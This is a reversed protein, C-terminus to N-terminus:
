VRTEEQRRIAPVGIVIPLMIGLLLAVLVGLDTGALESDLPVGLLGYLYGQWGLWTVTATTLGFGIGTILFLGILNGWRVDAYVGGRKVLSESEFRRNRIMTEAAFIGAWAAIPVALTTALDRFLEYIGGSVAFTLVLAVLGLLVATIVTAWQRRVRVGIAQLAFGGSYLTVVIGSLLSLVTAAILPVPYWSPLMLALTDLPSLVFGSAIGKDSAALLAGYTILVFAPLTAGVTSWLMSAAGSSSPRQYRALDAGSTAWVLGVFSFVLVAGTIALVWSGDPTTLAAPIDIYQFTLAILGVILIASAITTILQIRALLHYGAFAILLAIVFAAGLSIILVLSESLGGTLSAGVLVVAVGSGLLWLLVAGWFIRTLFALIAPVVNGVLGFTARSVVMTPQGSRKGALTTLGLPLFSLATGALVAVISQRLSMGLAFVSAGLGLSVITSNSAFWLWFLRAARGVRHDVPTPELGVQEISFVRQRVPEPDLLVVEDEPIRVTSIPGSPPSILATVRDTDDVDDDLEEEYAQDIVTISDTDLAVGESASFPAPEVFFGEAGFPPPVIEPEPRVEEDAPGSLLDDFSFPTGSLPIETPTEDEIVEAVVVDDPDTATPESPASEAVTPPVFPMGLPPPEVLPPPAFPSVLEAEPEPGLEPEPEPEVFLIPAVEPGPEPEPEPEPVLEPELATPDYEPAPSWGASPPPVDWAPPEPPVADAIARAQLQAELQEIVSLTGGPELGVQELLSLLEPDRVVPEPPGEPLDVAQAPDPAPLTSWAPVEAIPEPTSPVETAVPSAEPAPEAEAGSEPIPEASIEDESDDGDDVEAAPEADPEPVHARFGLDAALASALEDDDHFPDGEPAPPVIAPPPTFTSRRPGSTAHSVDIPNQGLVEDDDNAM